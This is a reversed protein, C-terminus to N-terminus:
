TQMSICGERRFVDPFPQWPQGRVGSKAVANRSCRRLCMDSHIFPPLARGRPSTTIGWKVGAVCGAEGPILMVLTTGTAQMATCIMPWRSMQIDVRM